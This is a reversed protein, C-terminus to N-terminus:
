AAVELPQRLIVVGDSQRIKELFKGDASKRLATPEETEEERIVPKRKESKVTQVIYAQPDGSGAQMAATIATAVIKEGAAAGGATKIQMGLFSRASREQIGNRTLLDIGSSWIFERDSIELPLSTGSTSEENSSSVDPTIDLEPEPQKVKESGKAKPQDKTKLSKPRGGKKGNESLTKRKQTVAEHIESLRKQCISDCSVEFFEEISPWVKKWNARSLRSVKRLKEPDNPLEGDNNWLAMLLLLYAGHELTTLHFTDGLYDSTYLPMYPISM